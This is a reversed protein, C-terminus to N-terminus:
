LLCNATGFIHAVEREKSHSGNDEHRQAYGTALFVAVFAADLELCLFGFARSSSVVWLQQLLHDM